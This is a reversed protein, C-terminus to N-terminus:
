NIIDEQKRKGGIMNQGNVRFPFWLYAITGIIAVPIVSYLVANTNIM